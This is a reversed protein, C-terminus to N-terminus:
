PYLPFYCTTRTKALKQPTCVLNVGLHTIIFAWVQAESFAATMRLLTLRRVLATELKIRLAYKGLALM